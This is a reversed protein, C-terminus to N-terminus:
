AMWSIKIHPWAARLRAVETSAIPNGFLILSRLSPMAGLADPVATLRNQDLSLTELSTLATIAAPLEALDRDVLRLWRLSRLQFLAPPLPGRGGDLRLTEITRCGALVGLAQALDLAPMRALEVERLPARGLGAPLVDIACDNLHLLELAPWAGDPLGTLPNGGSWTGGLVLERLRRLTAVTAPLATLQNAEARLTQLAALAGLNAPLAALQNHGVDLHELAGLEGITAPLAALQNGSIVLRRLQALRGIEPAIVQMSCGSAVLERLATLAGIAPPLEPVPVGSLILKEAATATYLAAPLERLGRGMLNLERTQPGIALLAYSRLETLLAEIWAAFGIPKGDDGGLPSWGQDWSRWMMGRQEGSLVLCDRESADGGIALAHAETVPDALGQAPTLLVREGAHSIGSCVGALFRRHDPDLEVGLEQELRAIAAAPLPPVLTVGTLGDLLGRM